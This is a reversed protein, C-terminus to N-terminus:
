NRDVATDSEYSGQFHSPLAGATKDEQAPWTVLIRVFTPRNYFYGFTTAANATAYAGPLAKPLTVVITAKYISAPTIPGNLAGTPNGTDDLYFTNTSGTALTTSSTDVTLGYRPSISPTSNTTPPTGRIDAAIQSAIGAASTKQLSDTTSMLGAPLLALLTLLCFSLVAIAVSVEVLSFGRRQPPKTM